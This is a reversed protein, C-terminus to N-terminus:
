VAASGRYQCPVNGLRGSGRGCEVWLESKSALVNRSAEARGSSIARACHVMTLTWLISSIIEDSSYEIKGPPSALKLYLAMKSAPLIFIQKQPSLAPKRPLDINHVGFNESLKRQALPSFFFFFDHIPYRCLLGNNSTACENSNRLAGTKRSLTM